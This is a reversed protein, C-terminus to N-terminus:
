ILFWQVNENMRRARQAKRRDRETGTAEGNREKEGRRGMEKRRRDGTVIKKRGKLIIWADKSTGEKKNLKKPDTPIRYMKALIWKSTLVYWAHGKPDPNRWELHYKELEMWKGAFNMIEKDKIASYYEMTYIFWM